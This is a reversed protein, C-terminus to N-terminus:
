DEERAHGQDEHFSVVVCENRLLVKVYVLAGAVRPKFVYLVEGTAESPMRGAFDQPTLRALVDCADLEDLGSELSALERRAKLTFFVRRSEALQRIRKLTTALWRPM